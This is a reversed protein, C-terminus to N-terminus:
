NLCPRIPRAEIERLTCLCASFVCEFFRSSSFVKTIKYFLDFVAKKDIYQSLFTLSVMEVPFIGSFVLRLRTNESPMKRTLIVDNKNM